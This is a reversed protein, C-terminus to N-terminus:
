FRKRLGNMIFQVLAEAEANDDKVFDHPLILFRILFYGVMQSFCFHLIKEAPLDVLEGQEKFREIFPMIRGGINEKFYPALEKRLEENYLVEKAFVQFIERNGNIFEIRNLILAKLLSEFSPHAEMNIEQFVSEAMAPFSNRLFTIIISMLLQDKTGYHRFITGEAVGAERAIESTSTNAYGKEAFLRVAAAFIKQQKDTPKKPSSIQAIM